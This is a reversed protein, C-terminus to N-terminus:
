PREHIDEQFGLNSVFNWWQGEEYCPSFGNLAAAQAEEKSSYAKSYFKHGDIERVLKKGQWIELAKQWAKSGASSNAKAYEIAKEKNGYIEMGDKLAAVLSEVAASMWNM